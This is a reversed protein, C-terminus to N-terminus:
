AGITSSYTTPAPKVGSLVNTHAKINRGIIQSAIAGIGTVILGLPDATEDAVEGVETIDKAVKLAKESDAVATSVVEAGTSLESGVSSEIEGAQNSARELDKTANDLTNQHQVLEDAIRNRNQEASIARAESSEVQNRADNLNKRNQADAIQQKASIRGGAQSVARQTDADVIKQASDRLEYSQRIADRSDIIENNADELAQKTNEVRENAKDVLDKLQSINSPSASQTIDPEPISQKVGTIRERLDKALGNAREQGSQILKRIEGETKGKVSKLTKSNKLLKVAMDTAKVKSALALGIFFQQEFNKKDDTIQESTPNLQNVSDKLRQTTNSYNVFQSM